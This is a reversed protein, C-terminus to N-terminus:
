KTEKQLPASPPSIMFADRRRVLPYQYSTQVPPIALPTKVTVSNVWLQLCDLHPIGFELFTASTVVAEDRIRLRRLIRLVCDNTM